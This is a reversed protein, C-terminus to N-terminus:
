RKEKLVYKQIFRKLSGEMSIMYPSIFFPMSLQQKKLNELTTQGLKQADETRRLQALAYARYAQSVGSPDTNQHTLTLLSKWHQQHVLFRYRVRLLYARMPVRYQNIFQTNQQSLQKLGKMAYHNAQYYQQLKWYGHAIFYYLQINEPYKQSLTILHQVSKVRLPDPVTGWLLFLYMLQGEEKAYTGKQIVLDLHATGEELSGSALFLPALTRIIWSSQVIMIKLIGTSLFADYFQPHQNQIEEFIKVGTIGHYYARWYSQHFAMAVGSKLGYIMGLFLKWALHDPEKQRYELLQQLARNSQREFAENYQDAEKRLLSTLEMYHFVAQLTARTPAETQDILHQLHSRAEWFRLKYFASRMAVIVDYHPIEIPRSSAAFCSVSIMLLLPILLFKLM